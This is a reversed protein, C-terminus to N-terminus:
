FSSIIIIKSKKKSQLSYNVIIFWRNNFAAQWSNMCHFTTFLKWHFNWYKLSSLTPQFIFYILMSSHSWLHSKSKQACTPEPYHITLISTLHKFEGLKWGLFQESFTHHFLKVKIFRISFSLTGWFLESFVRIIFVAFGGQPKWNESHWIIRYVCLIWLM